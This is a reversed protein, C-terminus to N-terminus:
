TVATRGHGADHEGFTVLVRASGRRCRGVAVPQRRQLAIDTHGGQLRRLRVLQHELVEAVSLWAWIVEFHQGLRQASHVGGGIGPLQVRGPEVLREVGWVVQHDAVEHRRAPVCEVPHGQRDCHRRRRELLVGVDAVEQEGVLPDRDDVEVVQGQGREAVVEGFEHDAGGHGVAAEVRVLNSLSQDRVVRVRGLSIDVRCTRGFLQPDIGLEVVLEGRSVQMAVPVVVGPGVYAWPPFGLHNSSRWRRLMPRRRPSVGAQVSYQGVDDGIPFGLVGNVADLVMQGIAGARLPCLTSVVRAPFALLGGSGSPQRQRWM